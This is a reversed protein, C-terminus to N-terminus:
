FPTWNFISEKPTVLLLGSIPMALGIPSKAVQRYRFPAIITALFDGLIFRERNEDSNYADIKLYEKTDSTLLKNTFSQGHIGIPLLSWIGLIFGFNKMSM